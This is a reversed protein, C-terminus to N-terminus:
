KSFFHTRDFAIAEIEEIQDEHLGKYVSTALALIDAGDDDTEIVVRVEQGDKLLGELSHIPILTGKQFIATIIKTM